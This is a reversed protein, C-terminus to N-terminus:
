VLDIRDSALFIAFGNNLRLAYKLEKLSACSLFFWIFVKYVTEQGGM